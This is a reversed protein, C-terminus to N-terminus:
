DMPVGFPATEQDLFDFAPFSLREQKLVLVSLKEESSDVVLPLAPFGARGQSLTSPMKHLSCQYQDQRHIGDAPRCILQFDIRRCRGLHNMHRRGKIM